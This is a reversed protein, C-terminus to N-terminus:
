SDSHKKEGKGLRQSEQEEIPRSALLGGSVSCLVDDFTMIESKGSKQHPDRCSFIGNTLGFSRCVIKESECIM